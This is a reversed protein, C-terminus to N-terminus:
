EFTIQVTMGWRLQPDPDNLSIRVTYTVDGRLTTFVDAIREVQGIIVQEPLADPTVRVRGGAQISVVEMETLDTTEVYWTSFDAVMVLPQGAPVWEGEALNLDVVRGAYPATMELDALSAKVAEVQARANDLRAQALALDDPHPGSRRAEVDRRVDALREEALAFAYRASDRRNRLLDYSRRAEDYDKQAAELADDARKRNANDEALSAYKEAEEQADRLADRADLVRSWEADLDDEFDRTDIEELAEQAAIFDREAEALDTQAQRGLLPAKDTLRQLDQEASLLELETGALSAELQQRDGLRAIVQGAEVDQGEEVLVEAVRGPRAFVLWSSQNPVVSGEAVINPSATVVPVTQDQAAARSQSGQSCGTLLAASALLALIMLTKHKMM